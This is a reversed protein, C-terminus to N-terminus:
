PDQYEKHLINKWIYKLHYDSFPTIIRSAVEQYLLLCRNFIERIERESEAYPCFYPFNCIM